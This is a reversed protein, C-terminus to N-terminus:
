DWSAPVFHDSPPHEKKMKMNGINDMYVDKPDQLYIKSFEESSLDAFKNLGLRHAHPSKRNANIDRIHNLNSEFIELRKAEEEQNQYFGGM